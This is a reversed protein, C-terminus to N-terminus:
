GIYVTKSDDLECVTAPTTFGHCPVYVIANSPMKYLAEILEKVTM